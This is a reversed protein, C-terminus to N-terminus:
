ERTITEDLNLLVRALSQWAQPEPSGSAREARLLRTLSQSERDNPPRSLCLQFAQTIRTDDTKAEKLLRTALAQAFEVYATDNLLTLAQLPTNSRIRRTCTSFGDPADFVSLAPPPTARFIFTYLGRRYRDAGKSVPWARKVQGLSMVGEPIPPYVPPGGTKPSLLGSTALCVDRVVEADLRLRNQRWLLDNNPDLMSPSPRLASPTSDSLQPSLASPTSDSTQHEKSKARQEESSSSSQQYTASTVILQHLHKLSWRHEMFDVALWDLLEPHTPLRGMTGFDNETEVLGRGFYQQWVRNVLVRATLPNRRDILWQALALRDRKTNEPLPHLVAPVAPQVEDAPRTFDGKIFLTTKRPQPLEKMVLTTTGNKLTNDLELHRDYLPNFVPDATGTMAKFLLRHDAAARKAAPKALSKLADAPLLKKSPEGLTTEWEQLVAMREKIHADIQKLLQLHDAKLKDLNQGPNPVPLTPEDQNNLFAFLQYYERQSIADFKHDHCQACGITLGLWVTGTTAVRDFVSEIRFQEKDIGGEQNIQTNRHFGTAILQERSPTPLMDGAIQELTFQDFPKDANLANVVYDRYPWMSRPADISYGNSDGYRAQDLWWRGWREGYHPSKLLSAALDQISAAPNKIFAAVETPTPPLGTLDLHLRRILTERAAPPSPKLGAKALRAHIFADIPHPSSRLASPTSDSAGARQEKGKARLEPLPAKVPKIYAWHRDDSPQEDAPAKAGEAIWQQILAIQASDLPGRKYPMQPIEDHTGSIVQILLDPLASGRSGGTRAAAATDLKLKSKQTTAGHCKVCHQQLLPKIQTTYDVAAAAGTALTLSLTIIRLPM